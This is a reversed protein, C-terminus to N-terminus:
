SSDKWHINMVLKKLIIQNARRATWPIKLLRGWCWLELADIIQHEAKKITWSEIWVHSSSFGYSQSSLDKIAFYHRQKKIHQRPQDYSKKWPALMKWNWPQLWLRCHNQLGIFHFKNSNGNKEGDIQWSTIPSSAMIKTKQFSHRLGVRASEEKVKMLLSKLEEKSEPAQFDSCITIAAM